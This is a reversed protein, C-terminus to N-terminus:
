SPSPSSSSSSSCAFTQPCPRPLALYRPPGECQISILASSPLLPLLFFRSRPFSPPYLLFCQSYYHPIIIGKCCRHIFLSVIAGKESTWNGSRKLFAAMSTVPRSRSHLFHPRYAVDNRCLLAKYRRVCSSAAISRQIVTTAISSLKRAM